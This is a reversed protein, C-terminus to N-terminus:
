APRERQDGHKRRNSEGRHHSALKARLERMIIKEFASPIRSCARVDFRAHRKRLASDEQMPLAGDSQRRVVDRGNEGLDPRGVDQASMGNPSRCWCTIARYEPVIM